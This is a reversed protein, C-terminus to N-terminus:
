HAQSLALIYQMFQQPLSAATGFASQSSSVVGETGGTQQGVADSVGQYIAMNAKEQAAATTYGSNIVQGSSQSLANSISPIAQGMNKFKYWDDEIKKTQFAKEMDTMKEQTKTFDAESSTTDLNPDPKPTSIASEDVPAPADQLEVGFDGTGDEMSQLPLEATLKLASPTTDLAANAEKDLGNLASLEGGAGFIGACGGAISVIGGIIGVVGMMVAGTAEAVGAAKTAAALSGVLTIKCNLMDKILQNAINAGQNLEAMLQGAMTVLTGNIMYSNTNVSM